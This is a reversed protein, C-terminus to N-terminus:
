SFSVPKEVEDPALAHISLAHIDSQFAHQLAENVMRHRTIRSKDSFCAAVIRISFHGGGHARAGAHGSHRQSEDEIELLAPHLKEELAKRIRQVRTSM